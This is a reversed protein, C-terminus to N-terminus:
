FGIAMRRLHEAPEEGRVSDRLLDVYTRLPGATRLGERVASEIFVPRRAMSVVVRAGATTPTLGADGALLDFAHASIRGDIHCRVVSIGTSYPAIRDAAILGGFVVDDKFVAAIHAAIREPDRDLVHFGRDDSESREYGAWGDLLAGPDEVRRAPRRGRSPEGEGDAPVIWGQDEFDRLAKSVAGLSRASRDALDQVLPVLHRESREPGASLLRSLLTEAVDAASPSWRLAGARGIATDVAAARREIYVVGELEVLMSGDLGVWGVEHEALMDRSGPSFTEAVLVLNRDKPRNRLARDVDRPYGAGAWRVLVPIRAGTRLHVVIGGGDQEVTAVSLPLARAFADRAKEELLRM